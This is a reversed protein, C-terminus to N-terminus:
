VVPPTEPLRQEGGTVKKKKAKVRNQKGWDYLNAIFFARSKKAHRSQWVIIRPL